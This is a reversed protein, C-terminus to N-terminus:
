SMDLAINNIEIRTSTKRANYQHDIAAVIM